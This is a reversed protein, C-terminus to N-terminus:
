KIINAPDKTIGQPQPGIFEGNRYVRIESHSYNNPVPCHSPRANWVTQNTPDIYPEPLQFISVSFVSNGGVYKGELVHNADVSYLVDHSNAYKSRNTSQNECRIGAPSIKRRNHEIDTHSDLVRLYMREEKPFHDVVPGTYRM